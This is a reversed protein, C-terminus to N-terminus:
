SIVVETIGISFRCVCVFIFILWLHFFSSFFSFPFSFNNYPDSQRTYFMNSVKRWIKNPATDLINILIVVQRHGTEKPIGWSGCFPFEKICPRLYLCFLYCFLCSCFKCKLVILNPSTNVPLSRVWSGHEM